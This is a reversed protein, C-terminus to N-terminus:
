TKRESKEPVAKSCGGIDQPIRQPSANHLMEGPTLQIRLVAFKTIRHYLLFVLEGVQHACLIVDVPM